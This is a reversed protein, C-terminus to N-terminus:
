GHGKGGSRAGRGLDLYWQLPSGGEAALSAAAALGAVAVIVAVQIRRDMALRAVSALAIFKIVNQRRRAEVAQRRADRHVAM